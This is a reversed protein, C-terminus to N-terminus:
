AEEHCNVVIRIAVMSRRQLQVRFYEELANLEARTLGSRYVVRVNLIQWMMGSDDLQSQPTIYVEAIRADSYQLFKEYDAVTVLRNGTRLFLGLSEVLSKDLSPRPAGPRIPTVNRVSVMGLRSELLEASELTEPSQRGSPWPSQTFSLELNANSKLLGPPHTLVIDYGLRGGVESFDVYYRPQRISTAIHVPQFSQAGASVEDVSFLETGNSPSEVRFYGVRAKSDDGSLSVQHHERWINVAPVCNLLFPKNSSFAKPIADPFSFRFWLGAGSRNFEARKLSKPAAIELFRVDDATPLGISPVQSFRGISRFNTGELCSVDATCFAGVQELDSTYCYIRLPPPVMGFLESYSEVGEPMRLGLVVTKDEVIVQPMLSLPVVTLEHETRFRERGSFFERDKGIVYPYKSPSFQLITRAPVPRMLDPFLRLGVQRWMNCPVQMLEAELKGVEHALALLITRVYPDWEDPDYPLPQKWQSTAKSVEGVLQGFIVEASRIPKM